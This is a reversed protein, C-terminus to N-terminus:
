GEIYSGTRGPEYLNMEVKKEAIIVVMVVYIYYILSSKLFQRHSPNALNIDWLGDRVARWNQPRVGGPYVFIRGEQKELGM